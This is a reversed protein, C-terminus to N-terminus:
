LPTASAPNPNFRGFTAPDARFENELDTVRHDDRPHDSLMELPVGSPKTEFRKFLWVMGWPNEGARACMYAGNHDALSEIPRSYSLSELQAGTGVIFRGIQSNGVLMGALGALLSLNQDKRALNYVDHHIDHSVEHCLVGALEQRNQAFSMMSTTVYVRGGPVAFANPSNDRVLYFQFPVFYDRNAVSAIRRAIPELKRYMPDTRPVIKGQQQLQQWEQQGIQLEWQQEQTYALAPLAATFVSLSVLAAVLRAITRMNFKM